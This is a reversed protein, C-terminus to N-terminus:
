PAILACFADRDEAVLVNWTRVAAGTEMFDLGIGAAAFADRVPKPPRAVSNGTGLLLFAGPRAAAFVPAFDAPTLLSLSVADWRHIGDSLILLSGQHQMGAFRFAGPGYAEIPVRGPYFREGNM